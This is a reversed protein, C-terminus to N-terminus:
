VNDELPRTFLTELYFKMDDAKEPTMVEEKSLAQYAQWCGHVGYCYWLNLGFIDMNKQTKSLQTGDVPIETKFM